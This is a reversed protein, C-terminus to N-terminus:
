HSHSERDEAAIVRQETAKQVVFEAQLAVCVAPLEAAPDAHALSGGITGRNRIQFHGILPLAAALVPHRDRVLV